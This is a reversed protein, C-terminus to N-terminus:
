KRSGNEDESESNKTNDSNEFRDKRLVKGDVEEYIHPYLKVRSDFPKEDEFEEMPIEEGKNFYKDKM